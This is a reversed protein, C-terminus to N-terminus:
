ASAVRGIKGVAVLAIRANIAGLTIGMSEGIGALNLIDLTYGGLAGYSSQVAGSVQAGVYQLGGYTVVGIGLAVLVKKALPWALALLWVAINGM